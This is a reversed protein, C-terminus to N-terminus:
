NIGADFDPLNTSLFFCAYFSVSAVIGRGCGCLPKCNGHAKAVGRQRQCGLVTERGQISTAGPDSAPSGSFLAAQSTCLARRWIAKFPPEGLWLIVTGLALTAWVISWWRCLCKLSDAEWSFVCSCFCVHMYDCPGVCGLTHTCMCVCVCVCLPHPPPNWTYAFM